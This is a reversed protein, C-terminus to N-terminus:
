APLLKIEAVVFFTLALVSPLAIMVTICCVSHFSVRIIALIDFRDKSYLNLALFMDFKIM